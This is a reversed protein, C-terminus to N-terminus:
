RELIDRYEQRDKFFDMVLQLFLGVILYGSLGLGMHWGSPLGFGALVGVPFVWYCYWKAKWWGWRWPHKQSKLEQTILEHVLGSVSGRERRALNQLDKRESESVRVSIRVQPNPYIYGEPLDGPKKAM